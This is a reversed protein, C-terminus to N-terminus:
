TDGGSRTTFATMDRKTAASVLPAPAYTTMAADQPAPTRRSPEEGADLRAVQVTVALCFDRLAFVRGITEKRKPPESRGTREADVMDLEDLNDGAVLAVVEIAELLAWRHERLDIRVEAPQDTECWGLLDLLALVQELREFHEVYWEPHRERGPQDVVEAIGEVPPQIASHLGSRLDGVMEAPVTLMTSM